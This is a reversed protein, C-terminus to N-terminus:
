LYHDTVKDFYTWAKENAGEDELDKRVHSPTGFSISHSRNQVDPSLAAFLETYAGYRQDYLVYRYILKETWSAYRQLETSLYGPCVSSSIVNPADHKLPWTRAQIINGAKSQGYLTGKTQSTFNKITEFNLDEWHFGGLPALQHATSAVWVIRSEGKKNEQSTKIFIPDLLRQLLHTGLVNTGLQLEFGQKTKSGPPPMMVGANHIIIDLRSEKSLFDEVAPKISELDGLDCQIFNIEREAVNYEQALELQMKRIAELAKEKSRCFIYIKAKTSGALSKATQYGIGSNGGTVIVVKGELSPYQDEKFTPKSPWFGHLVQKWDSWSLSPVNPKSM